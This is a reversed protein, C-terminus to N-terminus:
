EHCVESMLYKKYDRFTELAENFDASDFICNYSKPYGRVNMFTIATDINYVKINVATDCGTSAIECIITLLQRANGVFTKVMDIPIGLKYSIIAFSNSEVAKSIEHLEKGDLDRDAVYALENAIIYGFDIQPFARRNM